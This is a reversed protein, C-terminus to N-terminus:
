KILVKLSKIGNKLMQNIELKMANLGARKIAQGGIGGINQASDIVNVSELIKILPSRPPIKIIKGGVIVIGSGDNTVGFLVKAVEDPIHIYNFKKTEVRDCFIEQVGTRTDTWFPMFFDDTAAIGFYDGIFHLDPVGDKHGHSVPANILPDWGSDTVKTWYPFTLGDDYSAVMYVNILHKNFGDDTGFTYFACGIKGNSTAALQPM